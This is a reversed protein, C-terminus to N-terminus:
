RRLAAASTRWTRAWRAIQKPSAKKDLIGPRFFEGLSRTNKQKRRKTKVIYSNEQKLMHLVVKSSTSKLQRCKVRCAFQRGNPPAPLCLSRFAFLFFHSSPAVFLFQSFSGCLFVCSRAPPFSFCLGVLLKASPEISAGGGLFFIAVRPIFSVDESSHAPVQSFPSDVM